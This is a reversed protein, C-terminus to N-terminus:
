PTIRLVYCGFSGGVGSITVSGRVASVPTRVTFAESRGPGFQNVRRNLGPYNITMVVNFGSRDPIVKHLFSGGRPLVINNYRITRFPAICGSATVAEQGIEASGPSIEFTNELVKAEGDPTDPVLEGGGPGPVGIAVPDAVALGIPGGTLGGLLMLGAVVTLGRFVAFRFM